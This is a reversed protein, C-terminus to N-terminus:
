ACLCVFYLFCSLKRFKCSKNVMEFACKLLQAVAAATASTTPTTKTADMM